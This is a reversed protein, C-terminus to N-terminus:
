KRKKKSARKRRKRASPKRRLPELPRNGDDGAASTPLVIKQGGDVEVSLHTHRWIDEANRVAQLQRVHPHLSMNAHYHGRMTPSSTLSAHLSCWWGLAVM